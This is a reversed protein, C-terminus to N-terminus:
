DTVKLKRDRITVTVGPVVEGARTRVEVVDGPQADQDLLNLQGKCEMVDPEYKVRLLDLQGECEQAWPVFEDTFTWEPQQVQAKIKGNPLSLTKTRKDEPIGRDAEDRRVAALLSTAFGEISEVQTKISEVETNRWEVLRDAEDTYRAEVEALERLLFRRKALARNVRDSDVPRADDDYGDTLAHELTDAKTADVAPPRDAIARDFGAQEAQTLCGGRLLSFLLGQFEDAPMSMFAAYADDANNRPDTM